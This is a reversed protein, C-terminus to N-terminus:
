VDQLGYFKALAGPTITIDHLGLCAACWESCYWSVALDFKIHFVHALIVGVWDYKDNKTVNYFAQVRASTVNNISVIDWLKPDIFPKTYRMVQNSNASATYTYGDAFVECHSYKSNTIFRIAKDWFNGPGKYFILSVTGM